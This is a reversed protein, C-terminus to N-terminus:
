LCPLEPGSGSADDPADGPAAPDDPAAPGESQAGSQEDHRTDFPVDPAEAPLGDAEDAADENEDAADDGDQFAGILQEAQSIVADMDERSGEALDDPTLQEIFDHFDAMVRDPDDAEENFLYPFSARELVAEDMYLPAEERLALAIADSPRADLSLLKGRAKLALEAYFTPGQVDYITVHDVFADLSTLADLFLDHTMPRKFRAKELAVGLMTAESVGVWIPVVRSNRNTGVDATPQLVLISPSPVPSMILTLVSVPVM